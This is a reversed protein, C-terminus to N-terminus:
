CVLGVKIKLLGVRSLKFIVIKEELCECTLTLQDARRLDSLEKFFSHGHQFEHHQLRGFGLYNPLNELLVAGPM